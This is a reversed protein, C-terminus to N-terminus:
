TPSTSPAPPRVVSTSALAPAPPRAATRRRGASPARAARDGGVAARHDPVAHRDGGHGGREAPTPSRPSARAHGAADRHAQAARRRATQSHRGGGPVPREGRPRLGRRHPQVGRADHEPRTTARTPVASACRSCRCRSSSCRRPVRHDRDAGPRRQVVRAWRHWMGEGRATKRRGVEFKDITFGVFGLLAPLLTIAALVAIVVAFSTGVALGHLFNLGMLLMGLLSVMVTFGAFVVARGSTTMAELVAGRALKTRHLAERYRTVIFLAYDIGVGLGIMAAVQPAFDPTTFVNALIGVGTLSIRDRDARHPDPAGHRDAFRVRDPARRDRGPHGRDRQGADPRVSGPVPTSSRSARRSSRRRRGQHRERDHDPRDGGGSRHHDAGCRHSGADSVRLPQSRSSEKFPQSRRLYGDIADRDRSRRRLRDPGRRRAAAPVGSRAPRLRRAFGHEVPPRLDRLRGRTRFRSDRCPCARAGLAALWAGITSYVRALRALM